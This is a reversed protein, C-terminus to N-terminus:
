YQRNLNYREKKVYKRLCVLVDSPARQGATREYGVMSVPIRVIPIGAREFLAEKFLDARHQKKEMHSPGDVEAGCVITLTVRDRVIFDCHMCALVAQKRYEGDAAQFLSALSVHPEVQFRDTWGLRLLDLQLQDFFIEEAASDWRSASVIYSRAAQEAEYQMLSESQELEGTFVPKRGTRERVAERLSAEPNMYTNMERPGRCIPVDKRGGAYGKSKGNGGFFM